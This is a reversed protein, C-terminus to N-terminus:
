AHSHRLVTGLGIGLAVTAYATLIVTRGRARTYLKPRRALLPRDIWWYLVTAIAIAM